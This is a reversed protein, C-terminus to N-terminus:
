KSSGVVEDPCAWLPIRGIGGSRLRDISGVVRSVPSLGIREFRLAASLARSGVAHPTGRHGGRSWRLSQRRQRLHSAARCLFQIQRRHRCHYGNRGKGQLVGRAVLPPVCGAPPQDGADAASPAVAGGDMCVGNVCVYHLSTKEDTAHLLLLSRASKTTRLAEAPTHATVGIGLPPDCGAGLRIAFRRLGSEGFTQRGIIRLFKYGNFLPTAVNMTVITAPAARWSCLAATSSQPKDPKHYSHKKGAAAPVAVLCTDLDFDAGIMRTYEATLRHLDRPIFPLAADLAAV